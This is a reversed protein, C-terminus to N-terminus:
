IISTVSTNNTNISKNFVFYIGISLIILISILIIILKKNKM